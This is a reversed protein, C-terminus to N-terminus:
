TAAHRCCPAASIEAANPRSVALSRYRGASPTRSAPRSLEPLLQEPQDAVRHRAGVAAQPDGAVAALVDLDEPVM